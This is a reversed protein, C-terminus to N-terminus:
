WCPGRPASGSGTGGFANHGVCHHKCRVCLPNHVMDVTHSILTKGWAACFLRPNPLTPTREPMHGSEHVAHGGAAESTMTVHRPETHSIFPGLGSHPHYLEEVAPRADLHRRLLRATNNM